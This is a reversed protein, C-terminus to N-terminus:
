LVEEMIEQMQMYYYGQCHKLCNNKVCIYGGEFSGTFLLENKLHFEKM